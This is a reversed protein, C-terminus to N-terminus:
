RLNDKWFSSRVHPREISRVKSHKISAVWVWGSAERILERPVKTTELSALTAEKRKKRETRRERESETRREKEREAATEAERKAATPWCSAAIEAARTPRQVHLHHTLFLSHPQSLTEAM